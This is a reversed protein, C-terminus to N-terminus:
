ISNTSIHSYRNFHLVCRYPLVCTGHLGAAGSAEGAFLNKEQVNSSQVPEKVQERCEPQRGRRCGPPLPAPSCPPSVRWTCPLGPARAPGPVLKCVAGGEGNVSVARGGAVRAARVDPPTLPLRTWGPAPLAPLAPLLLLGLRWMVGATQRATM